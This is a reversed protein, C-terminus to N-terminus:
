ARRVVRSPRVRRQSPLALSTSSTRPRHFNEGNSAVLRADWRREGPAAMRGAPYRSRASAGIQLRIPLAMPALDIIPLLRLADRIDRARARCRCPM